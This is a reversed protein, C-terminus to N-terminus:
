IHISEDEHAFYTTSRATGKEMPLLALYWGNLTHKSEVLVNNAIKFNETFTVLVTCVLACISTTHLGM